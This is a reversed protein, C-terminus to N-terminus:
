RKELEKLAEESWLTLRGAEAGPALLEANLSEVTCIEVGELNRAAKYVPANDKTVILISKKKKYKRGRKKGKGARKKRKEKASEVDGAIKLASFLKLVDKTKELKEIKGEVVLPLQLKEDIKHRRKVLEANATAAIASDLAKRKEKKNIKEKLVAETKPPHARAGGVAQPVKAVRGFLLARRNKTRPLRARGVNITREYHPLGRFGRYEASTDRGALPKTGKPQIRASQISLVARKILEPHYPSDFVKPLSIEKGKSGDISYVTAKM